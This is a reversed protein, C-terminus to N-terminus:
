CSDPCWSPEESFPFTGRRNLRDPTSHISARAPAELISARSWVMRSAGLLGTSQLAFGKFNAEFNPQHRITSQDASCRRRPLSSRGCTFSISAKGGPALRGGGFPRNMSLEARSLQASRYRCLVHTRTKSFQIHPNCIDIRCTELGRHVPPV